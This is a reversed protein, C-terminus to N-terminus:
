TEVPLLRSHHFRIARGSRDMKVLITGGRLVREVTGFRDGRMWTDTSPHAQVRQEAVFEHPILHSPVFTTM